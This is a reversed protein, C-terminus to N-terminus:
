RLMAKSPNLPLSLPMVRAVAELAQAKTPTTRTTMAVTTFEAAMRM